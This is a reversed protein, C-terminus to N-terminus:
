PTSGTASIIYLLFALLLLKFLTGLFSGEGEPDGPTEYYAGRASKEREERAM